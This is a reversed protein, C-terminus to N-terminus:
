FVDLKGVIYLYASLREERRSLGWLKCNNIHYKTNRKVKDKAM